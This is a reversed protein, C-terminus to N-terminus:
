NRGPSIVQFSGEPYCWIFPKKSAAPVSEEQRLLGQENLVSWATQIASILAPSRIIYLHDEAHLNPAYDLVNRLHARLWNLDCNLLKIDDLLCADRAAAWYTDVKEFNELMRIMTTYNETRVIANINDLHREIAAVDSLVGHSICDNMAHLERPYLESNVGKLCEFVALLQKVTECACGISKFTSVDPACNVKVASLLEYVKDLRTAVDVVGPAEQRDLTSVLMYDFNHNLQPSIYLKRNAMRFM